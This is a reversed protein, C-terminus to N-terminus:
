KKKKFKILNSYAQEVIGYVHPPNQDISKNSYQSLKEISYLHNM